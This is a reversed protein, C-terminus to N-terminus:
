AKRNRWGYLMGLVGILSWVIIATPEPVADAYKVGESPFTLDVGSPGGFDEFFQVEFTHSGALLFVSNTVVTPGHPGGNDVVAVPDGDIFLLSGDDSNLTFPVSGDVDTIISGKIDAGFSSLGFPHWNFGTNSAFLVNNTDPIFSGVLGSYPAGGGTSTFGSYIDVTITGYVPTVVALAAVALLSTLFKM